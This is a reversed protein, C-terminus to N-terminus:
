IYHQWGEAGAVRCHLVQNYLANKSKSIGATAAAAALEATSLFYARLLVLQSHTNVRRGEEEEEARNLETVFSIKLTLQSERATSTTM